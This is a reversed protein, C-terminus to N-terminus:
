HPHEVKGTMRFSFRLMNVAGIKATAIKGYVLHPGTEKGAFPMIIVMEVRSAGAGAEQRVLQIQGPSVNITEIFDAGYRRIM